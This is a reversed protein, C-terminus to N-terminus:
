GRVVIRYGAARVLLVSLQLWAYTCLIMVAFFVREASPGSGLTGILSYVGLATLGSSAASVLLGVRWYYPNLTTMVITALILGTALAISTFLIWDVVVMRKLDEMIEPPLLIRAIGLLVAVVFTLGMLQRIGYQARASKDATANYTIIRAQLILRGFWLPLQQVSWMLLAFVPLLILDRLRHPGDDALLFMDAGVIVLVASAMLRTLIRWTGFVTFTAVLACQAIVIGFAVVTPWPNSPGRTTAVATSAAVYAVFQLVCFTALAVRRSTPNPTDDSPTM